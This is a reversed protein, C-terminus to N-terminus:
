VAETVKPPPPKFLIINNLILSLIMSLMVMIDMSLALIALHMNSMTTTALHQRIVEVVHAECIVMAISRDIRECKLKGLCSYLRVVLRLKGRFFKHLFISNLCM